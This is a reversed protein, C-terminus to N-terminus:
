WDMMALKEEPSLPGGPGKGHPCHRCHFGCCAMGKLATATFVSLGTSPDVYRQRGQQSAIRHLWACSSLHLKGANHACRELKQFQEMAKVAWPEHNEAAQRIEEIRLPQQWGERCM